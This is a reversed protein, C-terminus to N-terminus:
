FRSELPSGPEKWFRGSYLGPGWESGAEKCTLGQAKELGGPKVKLRAELVGRLVSEAKAKAEAELLSRLGQGLEANWYAM